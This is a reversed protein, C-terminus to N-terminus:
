RTKEETTMGSGNQSIVNEADKKAIVKAKPPTAFVGTDGLQECKVAM